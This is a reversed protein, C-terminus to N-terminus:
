RNNKINYVQQQLVIVKEILDAQSKKVEGYNAAYVVLNQNIQALNIQMEKIPIVVTQVIFWVSTVAGGVILALTANEKSGLISLTTM